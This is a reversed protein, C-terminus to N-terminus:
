IMLNPTTWSPGNVLFMGSFPQGVVSQAFYYDDSEIRIMLRSFEAATYTVRDESCITKQM